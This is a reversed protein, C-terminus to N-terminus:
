KKRNKLFFCSLVILVMVLQALTTSKPLNAVSKPPDDALLANVVKDVDGGMAELCQFVYGDGLQPLVARVGDFATQYQARKEDSLSPAALHLALSRRQSALTNLDNWARQPQDDASRPPKAGSKQVAKLAKEGFIFRFTQIFPLRNHFNFYEKLAISTM